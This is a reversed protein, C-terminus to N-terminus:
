CDQVNGGGIGACNVAGYLPGLKIAEAIMQAVESSQAVDCKVTIAEANPYQSKILAVTKKADELNVDVVVVKAGVKALDVCISKGIGSSGGTVVIVKGQLSAM